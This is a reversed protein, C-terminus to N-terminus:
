VYSRGAIEVPAYEVVLGSNSVLDHPPLEAQMTMRFITGDNPDFAIEGHYPAKEDFVQLDPQGNTDYSSVICCFKVRYNSKEDPVQFHFVAVKGSSNQEWRAWTIKGKLADALVTSLIPGFEGTTILGGIKGEQKTAKAVKNDVVEKRDRYTVMALSKGVFHLPMYSLSVVATAEQVDEPPRDEFGTTERSTILNPLQRLTTNVYNVIKVLMQRTAAPDPTSNSPIEAAPPDLFASKDALLLLAQRSKEGPVSADLKTLLVSSLRETLEFTSLEQALEADPKGPSAALTQQLQGITIKEIAPTKPAGSAVLASAALLGALAFLRM